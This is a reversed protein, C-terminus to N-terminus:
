DYWSLDSTIGITYKMRSGDSIHSRLLDDIKKICDEENDASFRFIENDEPDCMSDTAELSLKPINRILLEDIDETIGLEGEVDLHGCGYDFFHLKIMKDNKATM